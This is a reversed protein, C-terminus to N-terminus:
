SYKAGGKSTKSIKGCVGSHVVYNLCIVQGNNAIILLLEISNEVLSARVFALVGQHIIISSILWSVTLWAKSTKSLVTGCKTARKNEAMNLNREKRCYELYYFNGVRTASVAVKREKNLSKCGFKNLNTTKRVKSAKFVSLLSYLLKSVLLFDGLGCRQTNGDPLLTELKVTGKAPCEIM